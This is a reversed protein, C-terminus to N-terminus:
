CNNQLDGAAFASFKRYLQYSNNYDSLFEKNYEIFEPEEFTSLLSNEFNGQGLASVCLAYLVKTVTDQGAYILVNKQCIDAILQVLGPVRIGGAALAIEEVKVGSEEYLDIIHRLSFAVGEMVARTLHRIDHSLNLGYFGGKVEDSWYPSREGALYPIFTLGGCGPEIELSAKFCDSFSKGRKEGEFINKYLWSIAAGTTSSVGGYLKYPELNVTYLADKPLSPSSNKPISSFIMSSSGLSCVVRGNKHPAGGLLAAIDGMGIVVKIDPNLGLEEALESCIEGGDEQSSRIEPLVEPKLGVLSLRSEAWKKLEFDYLGTGLVETSDTCIEGTLRFRIYDKPWLIKRVGAIKEPYHKYLWLLKPLTYTSNLQYFPLNLKKLLEQTEVSARRDLWMITPKITAYNEDLLVGTHMQGTFSIAQLHKLDPVTNHLEKLANKFAQWWLEPEIEAWGPEPTTYAYSQNNLAIVKGQKDYVVAKLASTGVDIGLVGGKYSVNEGGSKL